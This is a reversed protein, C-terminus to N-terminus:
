TIQRVNKAKPFKACWICKTSSTGYFYHGVDAFRGKCGQCEYTLMDPGFQDIPGNAAQQQKPALEGTIPEATM